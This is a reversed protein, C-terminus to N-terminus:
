MEILLVRFMKGMQVPGEKVAPPGPARGTGTEGHVHLVHLVHPGHCLLVPYIVDHEEASQSASRHVSVRHDAAARPFWIVGTSPSFPCM